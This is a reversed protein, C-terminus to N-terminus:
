TTFQVFRIYLYAVIHWLVTSYKTKSIGSFKKKHASVLSESLSKLVGLMGNMVDVGFV